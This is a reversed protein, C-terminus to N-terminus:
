STPGSTKSWLRFRENAEGGCPKDSTLKTGREPRQEADTRSSHATPRDRLVSNQVALARVLAVWTAVRAPCPVMASEARKSTLGFHRREIM